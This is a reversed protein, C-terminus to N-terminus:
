VGDDVRDSVQAQKEALSDGDSVPELTFGSAPQHAPLLKGEWGRRQRRAKPASAIPVKQEDQDDEGHRGASWDPRDSRDGNTAVPMTILPGILPAPRL